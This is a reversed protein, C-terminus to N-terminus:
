NIFQGNLLILDHAIHTARKNKNNVNFLSPLCCSVIVFGFFNVYRFSSEECGFGGGNPGGDWALDFDLFKRQRNEEPGTTINVHFRANRTRGRGRWKDPHPHLAALQSIGGIGSIFNASCRVAWM